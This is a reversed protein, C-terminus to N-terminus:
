KNIYPTKKEPLRSTMRTTVNLRLSREIVFKKRALRATASKHTPTKQTKWFREIYKIGVYTYNINCFKELIFPNSYIIKFFLVKNEVFVAYSLNEQIFVLVILSSIYLIYIIIFLYVHTDSPDYILILPYRAPLFTVQLYLKTIM